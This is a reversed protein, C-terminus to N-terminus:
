NRSKVYEICKDTIDKIYREHGNVEHTACHPSLIVNNLSGFDYKYPMIRKMKDNKDPDNNWVDSAFGAIENRKLREYLEKEDYINARGINVIYKTKCRDLLETSLINNTVINEPLACIIIDSNDVLSSIDNVLNVDSPYKEGRDIVNIGNSRGILMTYISYGIYGFGLLGVSSDFLSKWYYNKGNAYWEGNRLDEHFECVRHLLSYTLAIAHEAIIESNAHSNILPIDRSQLYSIPLKDIGTKFIFIRELNRMNYLPSETLNTTIIAQADNAKKVMEDESYVVIIEAYKRIDEIYKEWVDDKARLKLCIKM